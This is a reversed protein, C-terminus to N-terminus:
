RRWFTFFRRFVRKWTLEYSVTYAMGGLMARSLEMVYSSTSETLSIKHIQFFYGVSQIQLELFGATIRGPIKISAVGASDTIVIGTSDQFKFNITVFPLPLKDM